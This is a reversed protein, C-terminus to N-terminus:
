HFKMRTGNNNLPNSLHKNHKGHSLNHFPPDFMSSRCDVWCPAEFDLHVLRKRSDNLPCSNDFFLTCHNSKGDQKHSGKTPNGNALRNLNM